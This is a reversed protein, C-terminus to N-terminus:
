RGGLYINIKVVIWVDLQCSYQVLYKVDTLKRKYKILMKKGVKNGFRNEWDIPFVRSDESIGVRIKAISLKEVMVCM